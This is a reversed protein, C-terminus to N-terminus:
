KEGDEEKIELLKENVYYKVNVRDKGQEEAETVAKLFGEKNTEQELQQDIFQKAGEM